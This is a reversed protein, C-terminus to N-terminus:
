GRGLVVRCLQDWFQKLDHFFTAIFLLVIVVLLAAAGPVGFAYYVYVRASAVAIGVLFLLSVGVTQMYDMARSRFRPQAYHRTLIFLIKLIAMIILFSSLVQGLVHALMMDSPAGALWLAGLVDAQTGANPSSALLCYSMPAQMEAVVQVLEERLPGRVYQTFADASGYWQSVASVIFQKDFDSSCSVLELDFNAMDQLSREQEQFGRRIAHVGPVLAFGGVIGSILILGRASGTNLFQFICFTVYLCVWLVFFHREVMLPQFVIKGNPNARRYGALEFICWLRSLYPVSWLIRLEKSVTMYGGIGYVGRERMVPDTQHICAVDYFIDFSPCPLLPACLLAVLSVVFAFLTGWPGCPIVRPFLTYQSAFRLPMPLMDLRYMIMIVVSAAVAAVVAYHWYFRLLLSIFKQYGPTWWTHSVFADFSSAKKSHQWLKLLQDQSMKNPHLRWLYGLARLTDALPVARAIEDDLALQANQELRGLRSHLGRPERRVKPNLTETAFQAGHM